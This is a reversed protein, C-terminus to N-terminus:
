KSHKSTIAIFKYHGNNFSLAATLPRIATGANGIYLNVNKIPFENVSGEIVCENKKKNEVIDIGLKKLANIMVETDDSFLLNKIITKGKSISSILLVRNSISKSGPLTIQGSKIYSPKLEIFKIM